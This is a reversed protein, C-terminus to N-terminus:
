TREALRFEIKSTQGVDDGAIASPFRIICNKRCAIADQKFYAKGSFIQFIQPSRRPHEEVQALM